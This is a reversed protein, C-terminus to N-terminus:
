ESGNGVEKVADIAADSVPHQEISCNEEKFQHYVIHARSEIMNVADAIQPLNAPNALFVLKDLSRILHYLTNISQESPKAERTEM